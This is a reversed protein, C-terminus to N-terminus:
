DPIGCNWTFTMRYSTNEGQKSIEVGYWYHEGSNTCDFDETRSLAFKTCGQQEFFAAVDEFDATTEYTRLYSGAQGLPTEDSGELLTADPYVPIQSFVDDRCADWDAFVFVAVVIVICGIVCFIAVGLIVFLPKYLQFIIDM